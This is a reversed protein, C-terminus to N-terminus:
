KQGKKLKIKMQSQLLESETTIEDDSSTETNETDIEPKLSEIVNIAGVVGTKVEADVEESVTIFSSPDLHAVDEDKYIKDKEIVDVGNTLNFLAKKAM